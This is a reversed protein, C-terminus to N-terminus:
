ENNNTDGNLDTNRELIPVYLNRNSSVKGGNRREESMMNLMMKAISIEFHEPPKRFSEFEIQYVSLRSQFSLKYLCHLFLGKIQHFLSCIIIFWCLLHIAYNDTLVFVFVSITNLKLVIFCTTILIWVNQFIQRYIIIECFKLLAFSNLDKFYFSM